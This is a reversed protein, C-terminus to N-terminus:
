QDICREVTKHKLDCMFCCSRDVDVLMNDDENGDSDEDNVDMDAMSEEEGYTEQSFMCSYCAISWTSMIRLGLYTLLGTSDSLYEVDAIFFGHQKHMHVMCREVTKHKLDCMFCCSRDVDVLMNDDENGDSDEDNVDMDTMSEEEGDVEVDSEESEYDEENAKSSRYGKGRLGCSYLMPGENSKNKKLAAQRALFLSETVEPVGAVQINNGFM